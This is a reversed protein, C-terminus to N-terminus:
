PERGDGASAEVRNRELEKVLGPTAVMRWAREVLDPMADWLVTELNILVMPYDAYHDTIYFSEPAAQMLMEREMLDCHIALGGEAESRLRALFKRKVKISPTGYSRSELVGPLRKAIEVVRAFMGALHEDPPYRIPVPERAAM